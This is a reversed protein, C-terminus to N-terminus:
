KRYISLPLSHAFNKDESLDRDFIFAGLKEQTALTNANSYNPLESVLIAVDNPPAHLAAEQNNGSDSEANTSQARKGATSKGNNHGQASIKAQGNQDSHKDIISNLEKEHHGATCCNGM